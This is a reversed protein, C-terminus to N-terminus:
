DGLSTPESIKNNKLDTNKPFHEAKMVKYAGVSHAPRQDEVHMFVCPKISSCIEPPAADSYFSAIEENSLKISYECRYDEALKSM